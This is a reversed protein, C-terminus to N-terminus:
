LFEELEKEIVRKPKAGVLQKVVEGNKYLNLTPLGMVGYQRVTDPNQDANIKVVTLKGEQEEAIQELVPAIMKCPACWEAWFDVLVPLKSKLVVEEFTDDTVNQITAM